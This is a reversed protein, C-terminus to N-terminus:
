NGNILIDYLSNKLDASYYEKQAFGDSTNDIGLVAVETNTIWCILDPRNAEIYRPFFTEVSVFLDNCAMADLLRSVRSKAKEWRRERAKKSNSVFDDWNSIQQDETFIANIKAQTFNSPYIYHKVLIAEDEDELDSFDPIFEAKCTDRFKIYDMDGDLFRKELLQVESLEPVPTPFFTGNSPKYNWGIGPVPNKNDIRKLHDYGQAFLDILSQNAGNDFVITNVIVNNKIQAYIM